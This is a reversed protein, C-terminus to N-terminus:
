FGHLKYVWSKAKLKEQVIFIQQITMPVMGDLAEDAEVDEGGELTFAKGYTFICVNHGHLASLVLQNLKAFMAQGHRQSLKVASTALIAKNTITAMKQEPKVKLIWSDRDGATGV